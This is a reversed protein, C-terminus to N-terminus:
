KNVKLRPNQKTKILFVFEAFSMNEERKLENYLSVKERIPLILLRFM